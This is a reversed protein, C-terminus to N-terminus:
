KRRCIKREVSQDKTRKKNLWADMKKIKGGKRKENMRQKKGEKHMMWWNIWEDKYKLETKGEM